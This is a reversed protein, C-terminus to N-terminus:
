GGSTLAFPARARTPIKVLLSKKPQSATCGGKTSTAPAASNQTSNRGSEYASHGYYHGRELHDRLFRVKSIADLPALAAFSEVRTGSGDVRLRRAFRAPAAWWRLLLASHAAHVTAFSARRRNTWYGFESRMSSSPAQLVDFYDQWRSELRSIPSSWRTRGGRPFHRIPLEFPSGATRRSWAACELHACYRM